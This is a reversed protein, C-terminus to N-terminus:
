NTEFAIAADEAKKKKNKQVLITGGIGAGVGCVATLIYLAGTAFM